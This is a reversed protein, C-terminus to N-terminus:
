LSDTGVKPNNSSRNNNGATFDFCLIETQTMERINLCSNILGLQYPAKFIWSTHPPHIGGGEKNGNSSPWNFGFKTTHFYTVFEIRFWLLISSTM